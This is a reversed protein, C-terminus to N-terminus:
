LGDVPCTFSIRERLVTSPRYGSPLAAGRELSIIAGAADVYSHNIVEDVDSFSYGEPLQFFDMLLSSGCSFARGDKMRFVWGTWGM